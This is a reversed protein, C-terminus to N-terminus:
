TGGCPTIDTQQWVTLAQLNIDLVQIKTVFSSHWSEHINIGVAYVPTSFLVVLQSNNGM